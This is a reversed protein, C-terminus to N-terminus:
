IESVAREDGKVEAIEAGAEAPTPAAAAATNAEMSPVESTGQVDAAIEAVEATTGGDAGDAGEPAAEGAEGEGAGEELVPNEVMENQVLDILEMRNLQLLKIAQQLQPTMVLQQSMRLTQKIEIGM